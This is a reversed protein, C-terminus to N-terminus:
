RGPKSSPESMMQTDSLRKQWKQMDQKANESYTPSQQPMNVSPRPPLKPLAACPKPTNHGCGKLLMVFPLLMLAYIVNVIVPRISPKRTSKM